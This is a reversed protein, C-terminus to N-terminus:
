ICCVCRCGHGADLGIRIRHGVRHLQILKQSQHGGHVRPQIVLALLQRHHLRCNRQEGLCAGNGERHSRGTPARACDCSGPCTHSPRAEARPQHRRCLCSRHVLCGRPQVLMCRRCCPNLDHYTRSVHRRPGCVPRRGQCHGNQGHGRRRSQHM